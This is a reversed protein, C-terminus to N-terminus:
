DAVPARTSMALQVGAILLFILTAAFSGLPWAVAGHIEALLAVAGLSVGVAAWDLMGAVIRSRRREIPRTNSLPGTALLGLLGFGVLAGLAFLFVEGVAPPGHSHMLLAGSSWM